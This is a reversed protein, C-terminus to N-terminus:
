ELPPFALNLAKRNTKVFEAPGGGDRSGGLKCNSGGWVRSCLRMCGCAGFPLPHIALGATIDVAQASALSFIRPGPIAEDRAQQFAAARRLNEM